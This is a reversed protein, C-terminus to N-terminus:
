MGPRFREKENNDPKPIRIRPHRIGTWEPTEINPRLAQIDTFTGDAYVRSTNGEPHIQAVVTMSKWKQNEAIFVMADKALFHQPYFTEDGVELARINKPPYKRSFDKEILKFDRQLTAPKGYNRRIKREPKTRDYFIWGKAEAIASAWTKPNERIKQPWFITSGSERLVMVASEGQPDAMLFARDYYLFDAPFRMLCGNEQAERLLVMPEVGEPQMDVLLGFDNRVSLLNNYFIGVDPCAASIEQGTKPDLIFSMRTGERRDLGEIRGIPDKEVRIRSVADLRGEDSFVLDFDAFLLPDHCPFDAERVSDYHRILKEINKWSVTERAM